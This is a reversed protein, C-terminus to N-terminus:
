VFCGLKLEGLMRLINTTATARSTDPDQGRKEGAEWTVNWLPSVRFVQWQSDVLEELVESYLGEDTAAPLTLKLLSPSCSEPIFGVVCLSHFLFAPGQRVKEAHHKSVYNPALINNTLGSAVM